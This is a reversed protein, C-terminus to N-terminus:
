FIKVFNCKAHKNQYKEISFTSIIISELCPWKCNVHKKWINSISYNGFHGQLPPKQWCEQFADATDFKAKCHWKM